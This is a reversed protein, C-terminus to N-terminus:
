LACDKEIEEMTTPVVAPSRGRLRPCLEMLASLAEGHGRAIDNALAVRNLLYYSRLYSAKDDMSNATMDVDYNSPTYRVINGSTVDTAWSFISTCNLISLAELGRNLTFTKTVKDKTIVVTPANWANRDIEFTVPTKGMEVGNVVVTAGEPKSTITVSDKSKGFITACSCLSLCLVLALARM